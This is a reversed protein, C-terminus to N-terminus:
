PRACGPGVDLMLFCGDPLHRVFGDEVEIFSNLRLFVFPEAGNM